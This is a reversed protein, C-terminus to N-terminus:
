VIDEIENWKTSKVIVARGEEESVKSTPCLAEVVEILKAPIFPNEPATVSLTTTVGTPGEADGARGLRM